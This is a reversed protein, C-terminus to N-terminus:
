IWIKLNNKNKIIRDAIKIAIGRYYDGSAKWDKIINEYKTVRRFLPIWNTQNIDFNAISREFENGLNTKGWFKPGNELRIDFVCRALENTIADFTILIKPQHEFINERLKVIEQAVEVSSGNLTKPVKGIDSFASEMYISESNIRAHLKRYVREQIEYMIPNWISYIDNPNKPNVLLWIPCSKTGSENKMKEIHTSSNNLVLSSM